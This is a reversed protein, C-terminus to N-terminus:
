VIEVSRTEHECIFDTQQVRLGTECLEGVCDRMEGLKGEIKEASVIMEGYACEDDDVYM